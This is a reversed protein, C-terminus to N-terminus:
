RAPETFPHERWVRWAVFFPLLLWPGNAIDVILPEPTAHPRAWQLPDSVKALADGPTLRVSVTGEVVNDPLVVASPPAALASPFLIM